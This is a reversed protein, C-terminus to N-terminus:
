RVAVSGANVDSIATAESGGAAGDSGQCSM